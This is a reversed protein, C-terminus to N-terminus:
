NYIFISNLDFSTLELYRILVFNGESGLGFLVKWDYSVMDGVCFDSKLENTADTIAFVEPIM